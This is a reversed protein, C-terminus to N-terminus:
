IKEKDKSSDEVSPVSIYAYNLIFVTLCFSQSHTKNVHMDYDYFIDNLFFMMLMKM